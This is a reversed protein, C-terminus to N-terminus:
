TRRRGTTNGAVLTSRERGEADDVLEALRRRLVPSMDDLMSRLMRDEEDGVKRMTTRKYQELEAKRKQNAFHSEALLAEQDQRSMASWVQAHVERASHHRPQSRRVREYELWYKSHAPGEADLDPANSAKRLLGRAIVRAQRDPIGPYKRKAEAIAAAMAPDDDDRKTMLVKVGIGAGKDVHDVSDIRLKTIRRM